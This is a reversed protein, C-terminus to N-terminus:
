EGRLQKLYQLLERDRRHLRRALCRLALFALKVAPQVAGTESAQVRLAHLYHWRAGFRYRLASLAAGQSPPPTRGPPRRAPLRRFSTLADLQAVFSGPAAPPPAEPPEEEGLLEWGGAAGGAGTVAEAEARARAVAELRRRSCYAGM